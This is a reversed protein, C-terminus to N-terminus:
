HVQESILDLRREIRELRWEHGVLKDYINSVDRQFGSFHTCMAQMENSLVRTSDDIRELREPMRKLLEYMLENTVEAM